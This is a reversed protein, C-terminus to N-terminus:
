ALNGGWPQTKIVDFLMRSLFPSMSSAHTSAVATWEALLAQPFYALSDPITVFRYYATTGSSIGPGSSILTGTADKIALNISDPTVSAVWTFQVTMGAEIRTFPRPM